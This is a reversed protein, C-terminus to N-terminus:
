HIKLKNINLTNKTIQQYDQINIILDKIIKQNSKENMIQPQQIDKVNTLEKVVFLQKIINEADKSDLRREQIIFDRDKLSEIELLKGNVM